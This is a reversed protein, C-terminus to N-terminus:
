AHLGEPYAPPTWERPRGAACWEVYSWLERTAPEGHLTLFRAFEPVYRDSGRLKLLYGATGQFKQLAAVREAAWTAEQARVAPDDKHGVNPGHNM